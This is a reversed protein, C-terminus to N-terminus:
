FLTFETLGGAYEMTFTAVDWGLVKVKKPKIGIELTWPYHTDLKGKADPNNEFHEKLSICYANEFTISRACEGVRRTLEKTVQKSTTVTRKKLEDAKQYAPVYSQDALKSEQKKKKALQAKQIKKVEKRYYKKKKDEKVAKIYDSKTAGEKVTLNHEKVYNKLEDLTMKDTEEDKPEAINNEKAFDELDSLSMEDVKKYIAKVDDDDDKLDDWARLMERIDDDTDKNTIVIGREKAKSVLDDHSTEDYLDLERTDYDSAQDMAEGMAEGMMDDLFDLDTDNILPTDSGAADQLNSSFIGASDYIKIVGNKLKDESKIWDHFPTGGQKPARITVTIVSIKPGGSPRGTKDCSREITYDLNLVTYIDKLNAALFGGDSLQLTASIAM